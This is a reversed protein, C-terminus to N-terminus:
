HQILEFYDRIELIIENNSIIQNNQGHNSYNIKVKLIETSQIEASSFPNISQLESALISPM